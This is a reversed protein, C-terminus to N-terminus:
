QIFSHILLHIFLHIVLRALNRKKWCKFFSVDLTSLFCCQWLYPGPNPLKPLFKSNCSDTFRHINEWEQGQKEEEQEEWGPRSCANESHHRSNPRGWSLAASAWEAPLPGQKGSAARGEWGKLLSVLATRGARRKPTFVVALAQKRQLWLCHFLCFWVFYAFWVILSLPPHQTFCSLSM